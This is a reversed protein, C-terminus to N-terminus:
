IGKLRDSTVSAAKTESGIFVGLEPADHLIIAGAGIVSGRGITINDRLTANVGIFVNNGINVSGSIVVHSAIFVNDGITTHHGIHNGSWIICNNGIVVYPQINNLEFIFCNEGIPVNNAINAKPSICSIFSYGLNKAALYRAERLKNVKNYSIPLFLEYESPPHTKALTEFAVVPSGQYTESSIYDQDVTFAAVERNHDTTLYYHAMDAFQGTGFVVLKKETM